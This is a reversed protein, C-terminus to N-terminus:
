SATAPSTRSPAPTAWSPSSASRTPAARPEKLAEETAGVSAVEPTTYIVGPIVGYNVHGHQGALSRPWPWARTRPRTPSCRGPSRTASPTSAPSTPAGAARRDRDPRAQDARRRARRPRPGRHLAQPRHRRPRRRRRPTAESDDKRLKYTVHREGDGPEVGQVAAGLVFTLGQKTLMSRSRAQCIELDMGPTIQDLYEVVTVESGLRAYVSGMELGIVGAGIVVLRRRSRPAADARRHLHRRDERRGDVGPLTSAESGTAIVISKAKHVEDGVKVEGPAPITRGARSGPRGQEEQVPIRHRKTNKDVTSQKYALM